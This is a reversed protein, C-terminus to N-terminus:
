LQLQFWHKFLDLLQIIKQEAQIGEKQQTEKSTQANSFSFLGFFIMPTAVILVKVSFSCKVKTFVKLEKM